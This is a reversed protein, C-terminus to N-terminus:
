AGGFWHRCRTTYLDRRELELAVKEAELIGEIDDIMVMRNELKEMRTDILKSLRVALDVEHGRAIEVARTMQLGLLTAAQSEQLNGNTAEMAATVVKNLVVPDTREVLDHIFERQIAEKVAATADVPVQHSQVPQTIGDPTIPRDSTATWTSSSSDKLPTAMFNRQCDDASAGHGVTKAVEDWDIPVFPPSSSAECDMNDDNLKRRRAQQVVAVILDGRLEENFRKPTKLESRLSAPTPTSDNIADENVIGWHVLLNRLRQLSGADGVVARRIMSHTVNRNGLADSMEIVKERAVLYSEPTRHPASADFWEPLMTREIDSVEDKNYWDPRPSSSQDLPTTVTTEDNPAPKHQEWQPEPKSKLARAPPVAPEVVVVAKSEQKREEDVSKESAEKTSQITPNTSTVKDATPNVDGASVTNPPANSTTLPVESTSGPPTPAVSPTSVSTLVPTPAGSSVVAAPKLQLAATTTTTAVAEPTTTAATTVTINSSSSGIASAEVVVQETPILNQQPVSPSPILPTPDVTSNTTAITPPAIPVSEAAPNTSQDVSNSSSPNSVVDGGGDNDSTLQHSREQEEQQVKESTTTPDAAEIMPVDDTAAAKVAAAVVPTLEQAVTSELTTPPASSDGDVDVLDKVVSSGTTATTPVGDTDNVIKTETEHSHLVNESSATEAVPEVLEEEAVPLSELENSMTGTTSPVTGIPVSEGGELQNSTDTSIAVITTSPHSNGDVVGTTTVSSTEENTTVALVPITPEEVVDMPVPEEDTNSPLPGNPPIGMTADPTEVLSKHRDDTSPLEETPVALLPVTTPQQGIEAVYEMPQVVPQEVGVSSQVSILETVAASTPGVLVDGGLPEDVDMDTARGEEVQGQDMLQKTEDDDEESGGGRIREVGGSKSPVTGSRTVSNYRRIIRNKAACRSVKMMEQEVIAPTSKDEGGALKGGMDADNNSGKSAPPPNKPIMVKEIMLETVTFNMLNPDLCPRVVFDLGPLVYPPTKKSSKEVVSASGINNSQGEKEEKKNNTTSTRGIGVKTIGEMCLIADNPMQLCGDQVVHRIREGRAGYFGTLINRPHIDRDDVGRILPVAENSPDNSKDLGGGKSTSSSTKKSKKKSNGGGGKPKDTSSNNNNNNNSNSSNNNAPM